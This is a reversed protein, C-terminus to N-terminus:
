QEGGEGTLVDLQLKSAIADRRADLITTTADVYQRQAELYTTLTVAGLRYSRDALEASERYRAESNPPILALAAVRERYLAAQDFVQREVMRVQLYLASEAQLARSNEAAVQGAQANWIPLPVTIHMGIFRDTTAATENRFYPGVSVLGIRGRKALDVRLGQQDLQTQLSRIEFNRDRARAILADTAPIAPLAQPPTILRVHGDFPAGRLQNLEYLTSNYEQVAMQVKARATIAGAEIVRAEILPSPGAPDRLVLVRAVSAMRDAATRAIDAKASANFLTYALTRARAALTVTYQSYGLEALNIQRDAIARRLQIRGNFELPQLLAVSYTQGEGFLSGNANTTHKQGFEVALEPDALRGAARRGVRASALEAEYFRREANNAVIDAVLKEISMAGMVPEAARADSVAFLACIVGLTRYLRM